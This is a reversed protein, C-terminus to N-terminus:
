SERARKKIEANRLARRGRALLSQTAANSMDLIKATEDVSFGQRHVLLLAARQNQPVKVLLNVLSDVQEQRQNHLEPESSSPGELSLEAYDEAQSFKSQKRYQDVFKNHLVKHLWTRLKVQGVRYTHAHTWVKLWTEQVLDDASSADGCLRFAYAHLVDVHRTVLENFAGSCHNVVELMLQDDSLDTM